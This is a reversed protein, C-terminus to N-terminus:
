LSPSVLGIRIAYKVLGAIGHINLKKTINRRHVDVTRVSIGLHGAIQSTTYGEAILQLIERERTTLQYPKEVGPSALSDQQVLSAIAPSFFPDGKMIAQVAKVLDALDAGKILYGQAGARIAPRVYEEGSHMSLVLIRISPIHQRIAIIADIGNLGPMGLDIIVIDPKLLKAQELAEYGDNAEGVVELDDQNELLACLGQRVITHDEALLIRIPCKRHIHM